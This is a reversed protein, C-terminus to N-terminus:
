ALAAEGPIVLEVAVIAVIATAIGAGTTILFQRFRHHTQFPFSHFL